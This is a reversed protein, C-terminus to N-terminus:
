KKFKKIIASIVCVFVLYAILIGIIVLLKNMAGEAITEYSQGLANAIDKIASDNNNQLLTILDNWNLNYLWQPLFYGLVGGGLILLFTIM